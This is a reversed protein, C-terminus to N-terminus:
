RLFVNYISKKLPSKIQHFIVREYTRSAEKAQTIDYYNANKSCNEM